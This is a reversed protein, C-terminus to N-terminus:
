VPINTITTISLIQFPTSCNWFMEYFDDDATEFGAKLLDDLRGYAYFLRAVVISPLVDIIEEETM